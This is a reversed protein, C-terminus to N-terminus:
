ATNATRKATNKVGLRCESQGRSTGKGIPSSPVLGKEFVWRPHWGRKAVRNRVERAYTDPAPPKKRKHRTQNCFACAAAINDRSETGGDQRALLHEGTCQLMRAQKPKLHHAQCFASPDGLWMACGCYYCRGGQHAFAISRSRSLNKSNAPKPM